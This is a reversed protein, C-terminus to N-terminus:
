LINTAYEGCYSPDALVRMNGAGPLGPCILIRHKASPKLIGYGVMLCLGDHLKVPQAESAEAFLAQPPQISFVTRAIPPTLISHSASHIAGGTTLGGKTTSFLLGKVGM